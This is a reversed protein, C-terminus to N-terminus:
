AQRRRRGLAIATVAAFLGLTVPEPVVTTLVLPNYGIIGNADTGAVQLKTGGTGTSPNTNFELFSSDGGPNGVITATGNAGAAVVFMGTEFQTSGAGAYIGPANIPRAATLTAGTPTGASSGLSGAWNDPTTTLTAGTFVGTFNGSATLNYSASNVGDYGTTSKNPAPTISTITSSTGANTTGIPAFKGVVEFYVTEGPTVSLTSTYPGGPTASGLVSELYLPAAHASASAMLAGFAAFYIRKTYTKM